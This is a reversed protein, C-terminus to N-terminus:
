KRLAGLLVGLAVGAMVITLSAYIFTQLGLASIISMAYSLIEQVSM